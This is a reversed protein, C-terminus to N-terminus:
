VRGRGGGDANTRAAEQCLIPLVAHGKESGSVSSRQKSYYWPPGRGKDAAM